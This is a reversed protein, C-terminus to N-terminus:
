NWVVAGAHSANFTSTSPCGGLVIPDRYYAMYFRSTGATIIDGLVASRASVTLDAGVPATIGGTGGPSKVYLRKLSGGVCRVGQGFAVGAAIQTTGQLVITTGNLTQSGTTFVLTDASLNAAGTANLQSGGTAISNDCGRAPGAPPNGCPCAIVGGSGAECYVTMPNASPLEVSSSYLQLHLNSPPNGGFFYCGPAIAAGEVRLQDLSGMGSGDEPAAGVALTGCALNIAEQNNPYVASAAGTDFVTGDSGSCLTFTGGSLLGGAIIPGDPTAAISPSVLQVTWGFRDAGAIGDFTGDGDAQMNFSASVGCLDLDVIWCNQQSTATGGPLGTIAFAASATAPAVACPTYAEYFDINFSVSNLVPNFSCYGIQFGDISYTDASGVEADNAGPVGITNPVVISSTSPLRGEDFWKENQVMGGYYGTNCTNDYITGVGAVNAVPGMQGARTWTGTGLHYVGAYKVPSTIPQVRARLDGQAFASTSMLVLGATYISSRLM